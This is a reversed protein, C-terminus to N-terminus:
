MRRTWQRDSNRLKKQGEAPPYIEMAEMYRSPQGISDFTYPDYLHYFMSCLGYPGYSSYFPKVSRVFRVYPEHFHNVSRSCAKDIAINHKLWPMFTQRDTRITRDVSRVKRAWDRVRDICYNFAHHRRICNAMDFIYEEQWITSSYFHNKRQPIVSTHSHALVASLVITAAFFLTYWVTWLILHCYQTLSMTISSSEMQCRGDALFISSLYLMWIHLIYLM